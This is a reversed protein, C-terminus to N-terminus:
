LRDEPLAIDVILTMCGIGSADACRQRMSSVFTPRRFAQLLRAAITPGSSSTAGEASM